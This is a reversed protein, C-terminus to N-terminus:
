ATKDWTTILTSKSNHFKIFSAMRWIAIYSLAIVNNLFGLTKPDIDTIFMFDLFRIAFIVVIFVYLSASRKYYMGGDSKREFQTVLILPISLIAGIANM